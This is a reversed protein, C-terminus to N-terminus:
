VATSHQRESPKPLWADFVAAVNRLLLQGVPTIRIKGPARQVLGDHELEGLASLERAFTQDFDLQHARGFAATDLELGCFLQAILEARIEDDASSQWGRVVPLKGSELRAAWDHVERANQVFGGQVESIASPGFALMDTQACTTYGMFNRRLTGADQAHVLEDNELAFHDLGIYRYGTATLRTIALELIKLREDGGPLEAANIAKQHKKLSPMHAYGFLAIRDPRLQEVLDLTKAFREATQLPLGYMLDVNISNMGAARACSILDRTQEFPQPRNVRQQVEPDFDQVGMSLRDFGLEALTRVQAFSTVPPHVEISAEIKKGFPLHTRLIDVLRTLQAVDLYTPTGGGLHLQVVEPNQPLLKAVERVEIELAQLYREVLDQRQTVLMNCGCYFCLKRCFPVHVYLSV